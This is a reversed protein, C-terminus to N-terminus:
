NEACKFNEASTRSFLTEAREVVGVLSVKSTRSVFVNKVSTDTQRDTQGISSLERNFLQISNLKPMLKMIIM